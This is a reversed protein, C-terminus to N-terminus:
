EQASVEVEPWFLRAVHSVTVGAIGGGAVVGLPTRAGIGEFVAAVLLLLMVPVYLWLM